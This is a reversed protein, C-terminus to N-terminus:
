LSYNGLIAEAEKPIKITIDMGVLVSKASSPTKALCRKFKDSWMTKNEVGAAASVRPDNGISIKRSTEEIIDIKGEKRKFFEIKMEFHKFVNSKHPMIESHCANECTFRVQLNIKSKTTLFLAFIAKKEKTEENAWGTENDMRLITADKSEVQLMKGNLTPHDPCCKPISKENGTGRIYMIVGEPRFEKMATLVLTMEMVNEDKPM